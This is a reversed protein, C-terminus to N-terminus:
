LRHCHGCRGRRRLHYALTATGLAVGWLPWFLGPGVTGWDEGVAGAPLHGLALARLGSFGSSLVFLTVLAAPLIATRPRVPRGRLGPIWRPYVEGWRQVLGLTLVAGCVALTGMFAGALWIDPSDEAEERLLEESVGLPIGLAWAFRTAAYLLPVAVAVCTAVRGWRAASEASAWRGVRDSRGCHVCASRLQRQHVLTAAAWLLGGTLLIFQNVVPWPLQSAVSVGPPWGFPSGILVIPVHATAILLRGDPIVVTLTVAVLWGMGALVPTFVGRARRLALGAALAASLLGLVAIVPAASRQTVQELLSQGVAHPDGDAGFPFGGGGAAWYVGAAGYAASWAAAAWGV